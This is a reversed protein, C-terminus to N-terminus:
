NCLKQCYKAVNAEHEQVTHAFYTKGPNGHEDPDGAVFFLYETASPNAVAELSSRSVNSIPGPPLGGHMRTNYPSDHAIAITVARVPDAPLPVQDIVAGYLSTVDSGLQMGIRYRKLFVQAITPRDSATGSEQEVISAITVAQHVTLGQKAIAARLDPTLVKHMEDLSGRIIEEPKTNGAKQFTEPYIYGELSAEAPKDALVPHDAYNAPDFAAEVTKQDYGNNILTTKIQDIRKAPLITVLDTSVKGNTLISVIEQVSLNQRFPYTGAQLAELADSNRVYWEFAWSARILEAEELQAAIEKVSAGSPITIHTVQESNSVPRLNQEYAQRVVLVAAIILGLLVAGAILLLKPWRRKRSRDVAYSSNM